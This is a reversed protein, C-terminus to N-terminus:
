TIKAWAIPLNLSKFFQVLRSYTELCHPNSFSAGRQREGIYSIFCYMPGQKGGLCLEWGQLMRGEDGDGGEMVAMDMWGGEEVGFEKNINDFRM